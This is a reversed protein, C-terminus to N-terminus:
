IARHQKDDRFALQRRLRRPDDQRQGDCMGWCEFELISLVILTFSM